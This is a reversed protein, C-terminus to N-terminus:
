NVIQNSFLEIFVPRKFHILLFSDETVLLRLHGSQNIVKFVHRSKDAFWQATKSSFWMRITSLVTAFIVLTVVRLSTADLPMVMLQWRTHIEVGDSSVTYDMLPEYQYNEMGVNRELQGFLENERFHPVCINPSLRFNGTIRNNGHSEVFRDVLNVIFQRWTCELLIHDNYIYSNSCHTRGLTLFRIM